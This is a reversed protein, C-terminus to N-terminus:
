IRNRVVLVVVVEAWVAVVVLWCGSSGRSSSKSGSRSLYNKTRAPSTTHFGMTITSSNRCDFSFGKSKM